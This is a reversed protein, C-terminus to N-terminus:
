SSIRFYNKISKETGIAVDNGCEACVEQTKGRRSKVKKTAVIKGCNRCFSVVPDDGRTEDPAISIRGTIKELEADLSKLDESM